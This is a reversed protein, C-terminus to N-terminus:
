KLLALHQEVAESGIHLSVSRIKQLLAVSSMEELKRVSGVFHDSGASEGNLVQLVKVEWERRDRDLVEGGTGAEEIGLRPLNPQRRRTSEDLNQGNPGLVRQSEPLRMFATPREFLEEGSHVKVLECEPCEMRQLHRGTLRVSEPDPPGQLAEDKDAAM